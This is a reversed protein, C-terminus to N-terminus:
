RNEFLSAAGIIAAKEEYRGLTVDFEHFQHKKNIREWAKVINGGIIFKHSGHLTSFYTMFAKLHVGYEAFLQEIEDTDGHKEIIERLGNEQHGSLEEFRTSFWRTVLYEEFISDLYQHDWLSADFAKHNNEWVASGLGTGLTMGLIKDENNKGLAFIEGQLFAAADNIYRISFTKQNLERLVGKSIDMGYINDYKSQDKMLAIGKEYDFPGPIAIGIETITNDGFKHLSDSLSNSWSQFISKANGQSNLHERSITNPIIEWNEALVVASTIHTGGIDCALIYKPNDSM